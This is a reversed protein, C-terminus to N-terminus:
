HWQKGRDNSVFRLNLNFLSHQFVILGEVFELLESKIM